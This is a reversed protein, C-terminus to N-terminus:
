TGMPECVCILSGIPSVIFLPSQKQRLLDHFGAMQEVFSRLFEGDCSKLDPKGALVCLDTYVARGPCQVARLTWAARGAEM